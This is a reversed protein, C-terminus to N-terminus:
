KTKRKKCQRERERVRERQMEEDREKQETWLYYPASSCLQNGDDRHQHFRLNSARRGRQHLIPLDHLHRHHHRFPEVQCGLVSEVSTGLACHEDDRTRSCGDNGKSLSSKHTPALSHSSPSIVAQLMAGEEKERERDEGGWYGACM